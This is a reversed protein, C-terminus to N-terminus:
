RALVRRRTRSGRPFRMRLMTLIEKEIEAVALLGLLRLQSWSRWWNLSPPPVCALSRLLNFAHM